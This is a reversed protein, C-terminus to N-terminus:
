YTGNGIYRVKVNDVPMVLQRGDQLQVPVLERQQEIQHGTRHFARLVDDPVAPPVSALWQSDVNDREVAPVRWASREQASGAPDSVTVMRWPGAAPPKPSVPGALSPGARGVGCPVPKAALTAAVQGTKAGPQERRVPYVNSGIRFAVLFSAAVAGFMGLRAPWQRRFAELRAPVSAAIARPDRPGRQMEGFTQKWCQSELFALACRRWGGPADELGSLLDRREQDNLEGDVLRDLRPDDTPVDDNTRNM